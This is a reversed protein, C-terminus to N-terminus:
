NTLEKWAKFVKRIRHREAFRQEEREVFDEDRSFDGDFRWYLIHTGINKYEGTRGATHTAQNDTPHFFRGEYPRCKFWIYKGGYKRQYIKLPCDELVVTKEKNMKDYFTEWPLILAFDRREELLTIIVQWKFSFPPNSLVLMGAFEPRQYIDFFRGHPVGVVDVLQALERTSTGDGYFPEFVQRGVLKYTHIFRVWSIIETYYEDSVRNNAYLEDCFRPRHAIPVIERSGYRGKKRIYDFQDSVDEGAIEVTVGCAVITQQKPKKITIPLIFDPTDNTEAVYSFTSQVKKEIQFFRALKSQSM